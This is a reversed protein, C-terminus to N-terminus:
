RAGSRQDDVPLVDFRVFRCMMAWGVTAVVTGGLLSLHVVVVAALMSRIFLLAPELAGVAILHNRVLLRVDASVNIFHVAPLGLELLVLRRRCRAGISRLLSPQKEIRFVWVIQLM